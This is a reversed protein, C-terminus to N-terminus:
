LYAFTCPTERFRSWSWRLADSQPTCSFKPMLGWPRFILRLPAWQTPDELQHINGIPSLRSGTQVSRSSATWAPVFLASLMDIRWCSLARCWRMSSTSLSPSPLCLMSRSKFINASSYWSRTYSVFTVVLSASKWEAFAICSIPSFSLCRVM